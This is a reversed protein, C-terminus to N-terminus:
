LWVWLAMGVGFAMGVAVPGCGRISGSGPGLMYLCWVIVPVLIWIWVGSSVYFNPLRIGFCLALHSSSPSICPAWQGALGASGTTRKTNLSLDQRLLHPPSRYLTVGSMSRWNGCVHMAHIYVNSCMCLCAFLVPLKASHQMSCGEPWKPYFSVVPNGAWQNWSTVRGGM